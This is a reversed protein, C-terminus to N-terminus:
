PAAPRLPHLSHLSRLSRLSKTVMGWGAVQWPLVSLMRLALREPRFIDMAQLLRSMLDPAVPFLLQPPSTNFFTFVLPTVWAATLAPRPLEGLTVLVLVIPLLLALNPESLWTRTLFFVLTMVACSKLLDALNFSTPKLRLAVFILAPLWAFGLLWWLGPLYYTGAFLEYLTTLSMGGSVTFIANWHLLIPSADWRFAVFPLVCLLIFSLSFSLGFRVLQSWPKGWLYVLMVLGVPISIPKLAMALSLLWASSVNKQQYLRLVALLTLLTVIGDIQGWATTFYLQFPNFLMFIWAGRAARENAGCDRVLQRVLYALAINAAIIPLKIALNYLLLNPLLAYSGLYILGLVLPWLPPYGISTMGQFSPNNFVASLNQPVYPNQGTAVLYGTAMYIRMDYAHGFFLGLLLQLLLSALVLLVDERRLMMTLRRSTTPAADM